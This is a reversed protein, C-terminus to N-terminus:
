IHAEIYNEFHEVVYDLDDKTLGQHCGIYFGHRNIHCAVPYQEEIDGFIKRYIKQNLLPFMYRTEIGRQELFLLFDERDLLKKIIIPYMMFVHDSHPPVVPLQLHESFRRLKETLYAANYKRKRIIENMAQLQALGLAAEMETLRFNYGLRDFSFRREIIDRLRNDDGLDDDDDITLYIADRGHAMLSRVIVALQDNNTTVFGGVGTVLIHAMYTSFCGIDGFSGSFKGKYRAFMTEASDEMIKLGYKNARELIPDMDCPLGFLHVPIIARTRSTVIRDIWNPDINYYIPDVDAFVPRMNNYLVINSTSIFTISPVIVEDGDLWQYYEKLAALGLHLAATGSSCFIAHKCNHLRAFEREFAHTFRGASLRNSDLVENIYERELEGIHLCGLGIHRFMKEKSLGIRLSTDSKKQEM